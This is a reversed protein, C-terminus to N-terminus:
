PKTGYKIIKDFLNQIFISASQPNDLFLVPIGYRVLIVNLAGILHQSKIERGYRWNGELITKLNTEVLLYKYPYKSLRSICGFFRSRETGVCLILDSLSKREITVINEYSELSYDGTELAKIVTGSKWDQFPLPRKERSDIIIRPKITITVDHIIM